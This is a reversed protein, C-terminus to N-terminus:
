SIAKPSAHMLALLTEIAVDILWSSLLVKVNFWAIVINSPTPSCSMSTLVAMPIWIRSFNLTVISFFAPNLVNFCIRFANCPAGNVKGFSQIKAGSCNALKLYAGIVVHSTSRDNLRYLVVNVSLRLKCWLM